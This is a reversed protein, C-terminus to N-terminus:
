VSLLPNFDSHFISQSASVSSSMSVSAYIAEWLSGGKESTTPMGLPPSRKAFAISCYVEYALNLRRIHSSTYVVPPDIRRAYSSYVLWNGDILPSTIKSRLMSGSCWRGCQIVRKNELLVYIIGGSICWLPGCRRNILFDVGSYELPTKIVQAWVYYSVGRSVFEGFREFGAMNSHANLIHIPNCSIIIPNELGGYKYLYVRDDKKKKFVKELFERMHWYEDFKLEQIEKALPLEALILSYWGKLDDFKPEIKM